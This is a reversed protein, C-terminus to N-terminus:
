KQRNFSENKELSETIVSVVEEISKDTTDILIDAARDYYPQRYLILERITEEPDEVALLPRAGSEKDTRKLIASPSATLCVVIGNIKLRDINIKNLVLGGGCAIVAHESVAVEKAAAIEEERFFIEGSDRFIDPISKGNRGEIIQDLEIFELGLKEALRKGVSTKGTGMFGILVINSKM